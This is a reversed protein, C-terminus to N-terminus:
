LDHEVETQRALGAVHGTLHLQRIVLDALIGDIVHHRADAIEAIVIASADLAREVADRGDVVPTAADDAQRTAHPAGDVARDVDDAVHDLRSVAHQEQSPGTDALRGHQALHRADEGLGLPHDDDIGRVLDATVAVDGVRGHPARPPHLHRRRRQLMGDHDLGDLVVHGLHHDDVLDPCSSAEAARVM